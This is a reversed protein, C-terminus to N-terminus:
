AITSSAARRTALARDVIVAAIAAVLAAGLAILAIQWGAMGGAAVQAAPAPVPPPAGTPPDRVLDRASAAPIVSASALLACAIAALAAVFRRLHAAYRTGAHLHTGRRPIRTFM